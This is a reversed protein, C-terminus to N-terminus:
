RTNILTSHPHVECLSVRLNSIYSFSNTDSSDYVYIIIDAMDTKKSSRLVEAEYRSGFEQLQFAISFDHITLVSQVFTSVVLYVEKGDVVVGSVVSNMLKTPEYDESFKHGVFARLLSTKGSGAAGILYGLVVNRRLKGSKRDKKRPQTIQLASTRPTDPYGLYALYELTTKYNLLTVM